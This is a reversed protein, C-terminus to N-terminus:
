RGDDEDEEKGEDKPPFYEDLQEQTPKTWNVIRGTEVDVDMMVNDGYNKGPFFMPVYGNYEGVVEMAKVTNGEDSILEASFMDSCKASFRLVKAM